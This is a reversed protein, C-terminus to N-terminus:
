EEEQGIKDDEKAKTTANDNEDEPVIEEGVVQGTVSVVAGGQTYIRVGLILDEGDSNSYQPTALMEYSDYGYPPGQSGPSGPFGSFYQIVGEETGGKQAERDAKEPKAEEKEKEEEAEDGGADDDNDIKKKESELTLKKLDEEILTDITTPFYIDDARLLLIWHSWHSWSL